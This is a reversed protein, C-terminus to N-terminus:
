ASLLAAGKVILRSYVELHIDCLYTQGGLEDDKPGSAGGARPAPYRKIHFLFQWFDIESVVSGLVFHKDILSLFM